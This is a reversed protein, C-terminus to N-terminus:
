SEKGLVAVFIDALQSAVWLFRSQVSNLGAMDYAVIM